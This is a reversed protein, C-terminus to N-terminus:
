LAATNGYKDAYETVKIMFAPTFNQLECDLKQDCRNQNPKSKKEDPEWNEEDGETEVSNVHSFMEDDDEFELNVAEFYDSDNIKAEIQQLIDQALAKEAESVFERPNENRRYKGQALRLLQQ